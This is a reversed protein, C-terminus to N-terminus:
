SAYAAARSLAWRTSAGFYGVNLRRLAAQASVWQTSHVLREALLAIDFRYERTHIDIEEEACTLLDFLLTALGARQLARAVFVNRASHRSSGSDHAFLVMGSAAEPVALTGALQAKGAPIAVEREGHKIEHLAM